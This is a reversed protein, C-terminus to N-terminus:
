MSSYSNWHYMCYYLLVVIEIRHRGVCVYHWLWERLQTTTKDFTHTACADAFLGILLNREFLRSERYCMSM